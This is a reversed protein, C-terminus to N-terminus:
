KKLDAVKQEILEGIYWMNLLMGRRDRLSKCRRFQKILFRIQDKPKQQLDHISIMPQISGEEQLDQLILTYNNM